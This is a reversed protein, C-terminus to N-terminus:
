NFHKAGTSHRLVITVAQGQKSPAPLTLTRNVSLADHLEIMGINGPVVCNADTSFDNVTQGTVGAIAGKKITGDAAYYLAHPAVGASDKTILPNAYIVKFRPLRSSSFLGSKICVYALKNEDVIGSNNAYGARIIDGEKFVTQNYFTNFTAQ